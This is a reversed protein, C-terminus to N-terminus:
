EPAPGPHPPLPSVSAAGALTGPSARPRAQTVPASPTHPPPRPTCGLLPQRPPPSTPGSQCSENQGKCQGKGSPGCGEDPRRKSWPLGQVDTLPRCSPTRPLCTVPGGLHGVLCRDHTPGPDGLPQFSGEKVTPLPARVLVSPFPPGNFVGPGAGSGEEPGEM